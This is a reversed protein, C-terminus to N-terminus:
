KLKNDIQVRLVKIDIKIKIQSEKVTLTQIMDHYRFFRIIHILEYKEAAFKTRHKKACKM